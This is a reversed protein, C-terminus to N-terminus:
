SAGNHAISAVFTFWVGANTPTINGCYQVPRIEKGATRCLVHPIQRARKKYELCICIKEKRETSLIVGLAESAILCHVIAGLDLPQVIM